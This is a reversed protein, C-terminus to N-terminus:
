INNLRLVSFVSTSILTEQNDNVNTLLCSRPAYNNKLLDCHIPKYFSRLNMVTGASISRYIIM